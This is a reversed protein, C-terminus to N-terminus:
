RRARYRTTKKLTGAAKRRGKAVSKIKRKRSAPSAKATGKAKSKKKPM